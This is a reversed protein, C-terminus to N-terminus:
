DHYIGATKISAIADVTWNRILLGALVIGLVVVTILLKTKM